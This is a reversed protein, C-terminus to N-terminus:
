PGSLITPVHTSRVLFAWDNDIQEIKFIEMLGNELM